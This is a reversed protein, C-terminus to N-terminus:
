GDQRARNHRVTRVAFLTALLLAIGAVAGIVAVRMPTWDKVAAMPLVAPIPVDDAAPVGNQGPIV